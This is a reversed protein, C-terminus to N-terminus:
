YGQAEVEILPEVDSIVSPVNIRVSQGPALFQREAGAKLDDWRWQYQQQQSNASFRVQPLVIVGNGQNTMLLESGDAHIETTMAPLVQQPSVFVLAGIQFLMKISNDAEQDKIPLQSFVVRYSQAESVPAGIYKVKITQSKGAPILAQPPFIFFDDSDTLTEPAEGAVQRKKVFIEVPLPQETPNLVQFFRESQQGQDKLFDVMPYLEFSHALPSFLLVANLLVASLRM